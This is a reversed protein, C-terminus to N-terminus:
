AGPLGNGNEGLFARLSLEMKIVEAAAARELDAGPGLTDCALALAGYLALGMAHRASHIASAAHGIARAAGQAAPDAEAERAAAHCALIAARAQPLKVRGALWEGAADLAARPRSDGPCRREWLPLMAAEAYGCAWRALATTERGRMADRLSLVEPLDPPLTKRRKM